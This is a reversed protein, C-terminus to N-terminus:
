LESNLDIEASQHHLYPVIKKAKARKRKNINSKSLDGASLMQQMAFLVDGLEIELNQRNDYNEIETGDGQLVYKIPNLSKFGHRLIKGVAQVAEGLEESLIALREAQAASLNNFQQPTHQTM